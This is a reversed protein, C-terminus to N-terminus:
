IARLQRVPDKADLRRVINEILADDCLEAPLHIIGVKGASTVVKYWREGVPAIEEEYCGRHATQQGHDAPQTLHIGGEPAEPSPVISVAALVARARRLHWEKDLEEFKQIFM